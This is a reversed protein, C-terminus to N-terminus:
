TPLSPALKYIRHTNRLSCPSASLPELLKTKFCSLYLKGKPLFEANLANKKKMETDDSYSEGLPGLCSDRSM